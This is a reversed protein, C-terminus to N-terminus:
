VFCCRGNNAECSRCDRCHASRDTGSCRDNSGHDAQRRRPRNDARCDTCRGHHAAVDTCRRDAHQM